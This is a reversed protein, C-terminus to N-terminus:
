KRTKELDLEFKVHGRLQKLASRKERKEVELLGEVITETIGKKTIRQASALLEEPLNVTIKKAPNAM